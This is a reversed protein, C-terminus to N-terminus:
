SLLKLAEGTPLQYSAASEKLVVLLYHTDAEKVSSIIDGTNKHQDDVIEDGALPHTDTVLSAIHLKRKLEGRYQMRAVIEQGLYCGKDFSIGGLSHYDLMQPIFKESTAGSVWGLGDKVEALQWKEPAVKRMDSPPLIEKRCWIECRKPNETKILLINEADSFGSLSAEDIAQDNMLGYCVMEDSLDTMSAKSFVIYKQLFSQTVPVLERPMRLLFGGDAGAVRYSSIMRGQINCTAGLSPLKELDCTTYGQLFTLAEEGEVLLFGFHDLPAIDSM